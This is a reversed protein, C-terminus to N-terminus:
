PLPHESDDAVSLEDEVSLGGLTGPTPLQTAPLTEGARLILHELGVASRTISLCESGSKHGLLVVCTTGTEVDTSSYRHRPGVYAVRRERECLLALAPM